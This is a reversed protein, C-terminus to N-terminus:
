SYRLTLRLWVYSVIVQLEWMDGVFEIKDFKDFTVLAFWILSFCVGILSAGFVVRYKAWHLM